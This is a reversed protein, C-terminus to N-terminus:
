SAWPPVPQKLLMTLTLCEGSNTVSVEIFISQDLSSKQAGVSGSLFPSLENKLL